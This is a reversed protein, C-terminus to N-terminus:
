QIAAVALRRLVNLCLGTDIVLEGEFFLFGKEDSKVRGNGVFFAVGVVFRRSMSRLVPVGVNHGTHGRLPDVGQRSELGSLEISVLSHAAQHCFLSVPFLVPGSCPDSTIPGLLEPRPFSLTDPDRVCLPLRIQVSRRRRAGSRPKRAGCRLVAPFRPQGVVDQISRTRHTSIPPSSGNHMEWLQYYARFGCYEAVKQRVAAGPKPRGHPTTVHAVPQGSRILRSRSANM